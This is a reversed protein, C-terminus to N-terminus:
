LTENIIINRVEIFACTFSIGHLYHDKHKTEGFHELVVYAIIRPIYNCRENQGFYYAM